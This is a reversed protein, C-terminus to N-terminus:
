KDSGTLLFITDLHVKKSAAIIEEKTVNMLKELYEDNTEQVGTLDRNYALTILSIPEDKTKTLSSKLMLKALAIEDDSIDGNQISTLEQEILEKAKQYDSGEIGANVTMIGSFAGYSSSIYYCLSHKERVIKFLRSQSFGGFIANFVTMAYTGPDKFNCDVVYGLNLKAQTIDQKEIVELVESKTSKFNTVPDITTSNDDFRLTEKFIKVINENVDGVVYVHKVDDKLCELLYQYVEENTIEDIEDIYGNNSISLFGDEGMNKFLQDLGYMFKDDNQVILREKLEKKKINFTQEDFKGDKVNPNFLVDSFMEIQQKLLDEKYPLFEENICVSSINLVQGIGKTALNTGFNMGYLDELHTSLAQTSPYKTTGGTLMFALLSRKTVNEKTLKGELKLSMTINKFKKSPIVHLSYGALQYSTKM